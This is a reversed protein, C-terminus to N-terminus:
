RRSEIIEFRVLLDVNVFQSFEIFEGFKIRNAFDSLFAVTEGCNM